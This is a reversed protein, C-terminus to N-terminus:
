DRQDPSNLSGNLTPGDISAPRGMASGVVTAGDHILGINRATDMGIRRATDLVYADVDMKASKTAADLAEEAQEVTFALNSSANSLSVALGRQIERLEKIPAKGSSVLQGLADVKARMEQLTEEVSAKIERRMIEQKSEIPEIGPIDAGNFSSLTVPTGTGDGGSMIFSAFQAHSMEIIALRDDSHIWDSSLHRDLHARSLEIRVRAHHTLDSGFLVGGGNVTTLKIVGFAPHTYTVRDSGHTSRDVQTPPITNRPM